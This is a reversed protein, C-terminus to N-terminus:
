AIKEVQFLSLIESPLHIRGHGQDIFLVKDARNILDEAINTALIIGLGNKQKLHSLVKFLQDRTEPDMVATIEDILILKPLTSLASVAQLKKKQGTSLAGIKDAPDLSFFSLLSSEEQKSYSPYFSSYFKLFQTITLTNKLVSDQSLFCISKLNKRDNILPKEGLVELNGSTIPRAGLVLDMLTTKGVGNRGLVGLFEGENLDFNINKLIDAGYPISYNLNEAKILNKM